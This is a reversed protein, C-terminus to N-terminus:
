SAIDKEVQIRHPTVRVILEGPVGNSAVKATRTGQIMFVKYEETTMKAM